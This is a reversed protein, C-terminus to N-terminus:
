VLRIDTGSERIKEFTERPLGRDCIISDLHDLSLIKVFGNMGYKTSDAVLITKRAQQNMKKIVEAGDVLDTTMGTELSFGSTGVFAYKVHFNELDVLSVPGVIAESSPQFSGGVLTLHLAPNIRAYTFVLTSNTVIHIDRKGLLYKPILATTTGDNIMITDGDKIMDAAAKAIRNKEEVAHKQSELIDPHFAPFAGGRTRVILGKEELSTFDSRITVKSVELLDSIENVSPNNGEMLIDLIKKERESLSVNM